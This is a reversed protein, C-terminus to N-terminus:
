AEGWVGPLGWSDTRVPQRSLAMGALNSFCQTPSRSTEKRGPSDSNEAYIPGLQESGEEPGLTRNAAAQDM